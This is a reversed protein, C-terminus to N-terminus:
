GLICFLQLFKFIVIDDDNNDDDLITVWTLIRVQPIGHVAYVCCM